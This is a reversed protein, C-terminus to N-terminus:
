GDHHLDHVGVEFGERVIEARLAPDVRYEGEPVFNFSSRFGYKAELEMLPRCRELGKRGEVDHTLVFAFQRKDPWGPWNPPALESGPVIPWTQSSRARQRRVDVRRMSYRLGRPLWPKLCYYARQLTDRLM